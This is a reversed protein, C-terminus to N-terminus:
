LGACCNQAKKVDPKILKSGNEVAIQKKKIL